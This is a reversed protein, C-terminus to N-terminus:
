RATITGVELTILRRISSRRRAKAAAPPLTMKTPRVEVEGRELRLGMDGGLHDGRQGRRVDGQVGRGRRDFVDMARELIAFDIEEKVLGRLHLGPRGREGAGALHLLPIRGGPRDM